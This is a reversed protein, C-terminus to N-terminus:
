SPRTIVGRAPCAPNACDTINLDARNSRSSSASQSRSGKKWIRSSRRPSRTDPLIDTIWVLRCSDPGNAFVQFSANHHKREPVDVAAYAMRRVAEDIGVIREPVVRGTIFTVFRVDGEMRVDTVFGPALRTHVAGVDRIVDWVLEPSVDIEIERYVSATKQEGSWVGMALRATPTQCWLCTRDPPKRDHDARSARSRSCSFNCRNTMSGGEADDAIEPYANLVSWARGAVAPHCGSRRPPCESYLPLVGAANARAAIVFTL